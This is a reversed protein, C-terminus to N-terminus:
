EIVLDFGSRFQGSSGDSAILTVMVYYTGPDPTAIDRIPDIVVVGTMAITAAGSGIEASTTSGNERILEATWTFSIENPGGTAFDYGVTAGNWGLDSDGGEHTVESVDARLLGAQEVTSAAASPVAVAAAVIPASWAAGVLLQRRDIEHM